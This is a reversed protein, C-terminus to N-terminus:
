FGHGRGHGQGRGQGHGHGQAPPGATAQHRAQMREVATSRDVPTPHSVTLGHHLDLAPAPGRLPTALQLTLAPTLVHLLVVGGAQEVANDWIRAARLKGWDVQAADHPSLQAMTAVHSPSAYVHTQRWHDFWSTLSM